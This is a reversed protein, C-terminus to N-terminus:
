GGEKSNSRQADWGLRSRVEVDEFGCELLKLPRFRGLSDESDVSLFDETGERRLSFFVVGGEESGVLISGVGTTGEEREEDELGEEKKGRLHFGSLGTM